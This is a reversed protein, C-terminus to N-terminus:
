EKLIYGKNFDERYEGKRVDIYLFHFQEATADEYLEVFTEIPISLDLNDRIMQLKQVPHGKFLLCYDLQKRAELELDTWAQSSIIVKCKFHRNKKMFSTLTPDQLDTSLDDFVFIYEPALKKDKKQNEEEEDEGDGFLMKKSPKEKKKPKEEESDIGDGEQEEDLFEDLLNEKKNPKFHTFCDIDVGKKKFYKRIAKYTSDKNVTSAFIIIKTKRGACERLIHFLAMTKGSKKKACLMINCYPEAFMEYGKFNQAIPENLKVPKVIVNNIKVKGKIQAM